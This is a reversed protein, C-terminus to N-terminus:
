KNALVEVTISGATRHHSGDGIEATVTIKQGALGTTDITVQKSYQGSIIRGSTLTWEYGLIENM